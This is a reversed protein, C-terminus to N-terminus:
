LISALDVQWVSFRPKREVNEKYVDFSLLPERTKKAYKIVVRNEGRRLHAPYWHMLPNWICRSAQSPSPKLRSGNLWVKVDGQAGVVFSVDREDPSYLRHLLY